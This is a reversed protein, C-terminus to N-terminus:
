VGRKERIIAAIRGAVDGASGELMTAQGMPPRAMSTVTRVLANADIESVQPEAVQKAKAEKIMRMTAYRPTNAGSQISLVAPWPLGQRHRLGGELEREINLSGKGDWQLGM